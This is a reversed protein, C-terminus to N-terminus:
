FIKQFSPHIATNLYFGLAGSGLIKTAIGRCSGSRFISRSLDPTNEILQCRTLAIKVPKPGRRVATKASRGIKEKAIMM